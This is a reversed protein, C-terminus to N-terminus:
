CNPITKGAPLMTSSDGCAMNLQGQTLGRATAMNAGAFNAGTLNAGKFNAGRLYSGVFSANTLNAGAFNAATALIGYAEVDRMDTRSFNTRNAIAFSFDAQRLRAKAYSKGSLNKDSLEAQFLNCGVCSKAAQAKAVHNANQATAPAALLAASLALPVAAFAIQKM